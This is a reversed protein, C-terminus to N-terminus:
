DGLRRARRVVMLRACVLLGIAGLVLLEALALGNAPVSEARATLSNLTVATPGTSNGVAWQSFGTVGNRTLSSSTFNSV